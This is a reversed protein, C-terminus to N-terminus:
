NFWRRHKPAFAVGSIAAPVFIGAEKLDVEGALPHKSFKIDVLLEDM